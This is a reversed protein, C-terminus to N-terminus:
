PQVEFCMGGEKWSPPLPPTLASSISRIANRVMVTVSKANCVMVIARIYLLSNV